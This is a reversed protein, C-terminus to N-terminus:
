IVCLCFLDTLCLAYPVCQCSGLKFHVHVFICTFNVSFDVAFSLYHSLNVCSISCKLKYFSDFDLVDDFSFELYQCSSTDNICM